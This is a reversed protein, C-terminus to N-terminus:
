GQCQQLKKVLEGRREALEPTIGGTAASKRDPYQVSCYADDAQSRCRVVAVREGNCIYYTNLRLSDASRTPPPDAMRTGGTPTTGQAAAAAGAGDHVGTKLLDLAQGVILTQGENTAITFPVSLEGVRLVGTAIFKHAGPKPARETVSAHFGSGSRGQIERVAPESEVAWSKASLAARGIAARLQDRSDPARDKGAPWSPTLFM